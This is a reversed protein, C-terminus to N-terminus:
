KKLPVHAKRQMWEISARLQADSCEFCGGRAPMAGQGKITIMLLKDTGLRSLAQWTQHQSIRPAPTDILPKSAHCNACFQNFIKQPAHPDAALQKVFIVPYHLSQRLARHDQMTHDNRHTYLSLSLGALGSLLLTFLVLIRQTDNKM